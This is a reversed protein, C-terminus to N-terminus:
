HVIKLRVFRQGTAGKPMTARITRSVGDDSMIQQTVWRQELRLRHHRGM